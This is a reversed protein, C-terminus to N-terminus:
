NPVIDIDFFGQNTRDTDLFDEGPKKLDFIKWELKLDQIGKNQVRFTHSTQPNNVVSCPFALSPPIDSYNLGVQNPPIQVPTGTVLVKIPFRQTPLGDVESVLM